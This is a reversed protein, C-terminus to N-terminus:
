QGAGPKEVSQSGPTKQQSLETLVETGRFTGVNYPRYLFQRGDLEFVIWGGGKEEVIKATPPILNTAKRWNFFLNTVDGLISGVAICVLFTLWVICGIVLYRM